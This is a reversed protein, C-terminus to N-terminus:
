SRTQGTNAKAKRSAEGRVHCEAVFEQAAAAMERLIERSFPQVDLFTPDLCELPAFQQLVLTEGEGLARAIGVVDAMEHIEPVVTTRFEHEIGSTRLLDISARVAELDVRTGTARHYTLDLPAKVDMAVADILGDRILAAIADPRTGNTDLKVGPVYQRLTRILAPLGPHLTAEGGSIVVGDIWGQNDRLHGTIGDLPITPLEDAHLVLASAHCFPCRFNCGPLFVTTSLRGEWEIMSSPLFAKIPPLADTM